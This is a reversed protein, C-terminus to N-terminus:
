KSSSVLFVKDFNYPSSGPTMEKIIKVAVQKSEKVPMIMVNQLTTWDNKRSASRFLNMMEVVKIKDNPLTANEAGTELLTQKKYEAKLDAINFYWPQKGNALKMDDVYFLPVRGKTSSWKSPNNNRETDLRKADINGEESVVIDGYTNLKIDKVGKEENVATRQKTSLALQMAISLPVVRIQAANWINAAGNQKDKERADRLAQEAINYSLFFYGTAGNEGNFIMFPVGTDGQVLVFTPITGLTKLVDAASSQSGSSDSEDAVAATPATLLGSLLLPLATSATAVSTLITERRGLFVKPCHSSEYDLNSDAKVCCLRSSRRITRDEFRQNKHCSLSDFHRRPQLLFPHFAVTHAALSFFVFGVVVVVRFGGRKSRRSFDM